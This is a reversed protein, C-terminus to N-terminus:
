WLCLDVNPRYHGSYGDTVWIYYTTNPKVTVSGTDTALTANNSCYLSAGGFCDGEVVEVRVYGLSEYNAITGSFNLTTQTAGTTYEVVVDGGVGSDCTFVHDNKTDMADSSWTWCDHGSANTSHNSSTKTSPLTCSLGPSTPATASQIDIIPDTNNDASSNAALMITYTTGATMQVLAQGTDTIGASCGLTKGTPFCTTGELVMLRADDFSSQTLQGSVTYWGTATPTYTFWAGSYVPNSSDCPVSVHPTWSFTGTATYPFTVSSLDFPVNCAQGATPATPMTVNVVPDTNDDGSSDSAMLLTYTTGGKLYTRTTATDKTSNICAQEKTPPFCATGEYIVLQADNFTSQTLEASVDYWGAAATTYKFWVANYLSNSCSGTVHPTWKFSGTQTHPFTSSTIDIAQDCTEGAAPTVTKINIEPNTNNDYSSSSALLITYTTGSTLYLAKSATNANSSACGVEAGTPSCSSGEFVVLNADANTDQTLTGSVDYWGTTTPTYTFWAGNYITLTCSGTTSPTWGFTGMATYPFTASSLDIAKDCTQGAAPTAPDILLLPDVHAQGPDDLAVVLTYTKAAELYALLAVGSTNANACGVEKDSADCATGDFIAIEMNSLGFASNIASLRYWGDAPPSYSFWAANYLSSDCSSGKAPDEKFTGTVQYPFTKGTIDIPKACTDGPTQSPLTPPTISIAPDTMSYSSGDSHALILYTTGATLNVAMTVASSSPKQCAVETGYPSCADTEFVALRAYSSAGNNKFKIVHSGTEAATYKYWVTNAPTGGCSTGATPTDTFDGTLRIEGVAGSIDFADACTKGANATASLVRLTITVAAALANGCTDTVGTGVALTYEDGDALGSFAVSYTKGDIQTVAGQTGSGTVATWTLSTSVNQVDESFTLSVLGNTTGPALALVTPTTVTPAGAVLDMCGTQFTYAPGQAVCGGTADRAVVKWCYSGNDVLTVPYESATTVMYAPDPYNPPPCQGTISADGFYVAYGSAGTVDDWDLKSLTSAVDTAADAPTANKIDAPSGTCTTSCTASGSSADCAQGSTACDYGAIWELCGSAGTACTEIKTGSCRSDGANPCANTCKGACAATGGTEECIQSTDACNTGAVWAKCGDSGKTCTEIETGRCRTANEDSCTDSCGASCKVTTGNDLCSLSKKGCDSEDVWDLDENSGKTCVQITTGNCRKKGEEECKNNAPPASDDSCGAVMLPGVALALVLFMRRM